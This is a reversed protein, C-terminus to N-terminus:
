FSNLYRHYRNLLEWALRDPSQKQAFRFHFDFNPSNREKLGFDVGTQNLTVVTDAFWQAREGSSDKLEDFKRLVEDGMVRKLTYHSAGLFIDILRTAEEEISLSPTTEPSDSPDNSATGFEVVETVGPKVLPQAPPTASNEDLAAEPFEIELPKRATEESYKSPSKMSRQLKALELAFAKLLAPSAAQSQSELLRYRSGMVLGRYVGELSAGQNLSHLFGGFDVKAIEPSGQFVVQIMEALLEANASEKSIPISRVEGSFKTNLFAKTKELAQEFNKQLEAECGSLLVPALLFFVFYKKVLMKVLIKAVVKM